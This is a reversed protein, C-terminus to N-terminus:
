NSFLFPDDPTWNRRLPDREPDNISQGGVNIRYIPNFAYSTSIKYMDGNPGKPSVRPTSAAGDVFLDNPTTFAEIANVFAYSSGTSPTFDLIQYKKRRSSTRPLHCCGRKQRQHRFQGNLFAIQNNERIAGISINLFGSEDSDVVYDNYFPVQVAFVKNGPEIREKYHTYVFFNFADDRSYLAKSIIDCFHARVLYLANKDVEFNWTVNVSTNNLQKATKYVDEPADYIRSGRGNYNPLGNFPTSNTATESNFIYPDDPTWIRRLRDGEFNIM